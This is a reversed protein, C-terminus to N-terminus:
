EKLQFYLSIKAKMRFRQEINLVTQMIPLFTTKWFHVLVDFSPSFNISKRADALLWDIIQRSQRSRSQSVVAINWM